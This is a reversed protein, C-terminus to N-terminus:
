HQGERFCLVSRNRPYLASEFDLSAGCGPLGSTISNFRPRKRRRIHGRGLKRSEHIGGFTCGQRRRDSGDRPRPRNIILRRNRLDM